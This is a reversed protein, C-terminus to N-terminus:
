TSCARFGARAPLMRRRSLIPSGHCRCPFITSSRKTLRLRTKSTTFRAMLKSASSARSKFTPSNRAINARAAACSSPAIFLTHMPEAAGGGGCAPPPGPKEYCVADSSANPPKSDCNTRMCCAGHPPASPYYTFGKCATSNGCVAECALVQAEPALAPLLPCWANGGQLGVGFVNGCDWNGGSCWEIGRTVRWAITGNAPPPPPPTCERVLTFEDVHDHGFFLAIVTSRWATLLARFADFRGPVWAQPPVHGLIYVAAGAAAAARLTENLWQLQLSGLQSAASSANNLLPNLLTWYNTNLAVIRLGPVPSATSYWGFSGLDALAPADASFDVGFSAVLSSYLWSMEESGDFVDGPATDHNGLVAFVPVGGQAARVAGMAHAINQVIQDRAPSDPGCSASLGAEGFDGTFFVFSAPAAAQSAALFAMAGEWLAPPSACNAEPEGFPGAGGSENTGAVVCSAPMRPCADHTECFCGLAPAGTVYYPDIHVDTIHSISFAPASAASSIRPLLSGFLLLLRQLPPM